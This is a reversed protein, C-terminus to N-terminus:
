GEIEGIVHYIALALARSPSQSWEDLYEVDKGIWEITPMYVIRKEAMNLMKNYGVAAVCNIMLKGVLPACADLSKTYLRMTQVIGGNVKKDNMYITDSWIRVFERDPHDFGALRRDIMEDTIKTM